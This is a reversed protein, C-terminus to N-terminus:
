IKVEKKKKKKMKKVVFFGGLMKSKKESTVNQIQKLIKKLTEIVCVCLVCIKRKTRINTKVSKKKKTWTWSSSFMEWHFWLLISFVLNSPVKYYCSLVTKMQFPHLEKWTHRTHLLPTYSISLYNLFLKCHKM